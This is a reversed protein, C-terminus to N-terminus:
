EHRRGNKQAGVSSSLYFFATNSLESLNCGWKRNQTFPFDTVKNQGQHHVQLFICGGGVSFFEEVRTQRLRSRGAEWNWCTNISELLRHPRSHIPLSNTSAAGKDRELGKDDLPDRGMSWLLEQNRPLVLLLCDLDVNGTQLRSQSLWFFVPLTVLSLEWHLM